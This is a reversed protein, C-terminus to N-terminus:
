IKKNLLILKSRILSSFLSNNIFKKLFYFIFFLERKKLFIVNKIKLFIVAKYIRTEFQERAKKNVHPSKNLTYKKKNKQLFFISYDFLSYKKQNKYNLYLKTNKYNLYLKTNLYIFLSLYFNYLFKQSFSEISLKYYM